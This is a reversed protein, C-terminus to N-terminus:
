GIALGTAASANVAMPTVDIRREHFQEVTTRHAVSVLACDPLAECLRAYLRSEAAEDLASTAEDLFLIEPRYLWARAFALKQQEGGSLRHGWRHREHLMPALRDLECSALARRCEDDTVDCADRPYALAEKLTGEAIYSKQPLIMMRVGSPIVICGRGFPWLSAIARLLTSKGCGSPGRLLVREGRRIQVDGVHAIPAGDPLDIRIGRLELGPTPERRVAIGGRPAEGGTASELGVLRQIVASLVVLESYFRAFWSVAAVVLNFAMMSQMLTGISMEGSMVKPAAALYPIMSGTLTTSADVFLLKTNQVLLQFWNRRIPEFLRNLRRREVADGDYLAIQEASERSTALQFRFDAEAKQQAVTIGAIRHGALHALGNQLMGWTIAVFFLYGPVAMVGFTGLEFSFDGSNRWLVQGFIVLNSLVGLFTLALTLSSDCYLRVDESIRQDANDVTRDREIRYPVDGRMWADVLRGTAFQRWNIEVIRRVVLKVIAFSASALIVALLMLTAAKFAVADRNTMADFFLKQQDTYLSVTWSSVPEAVLVFVLMPWAASSARTAWYHAALRFFQATRSGAM